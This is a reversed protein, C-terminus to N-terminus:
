KIKIQSIENRLKNMEVELNQYFPKLREETHNLENMVEMPISEALWRKWIEIFKIFEYHFKRTSGNALYINDTFIKYMKQYLPMLEQRFQTNEYLISKSFPEFYKDHELFPVPQESVIKRWAPDSAKFVEIRIDAKARIEEVCGFMPSYFERLQKELFEYRKQNRFQRLAFRYVIYVALLTVLSPLVIKVLDILNDQM